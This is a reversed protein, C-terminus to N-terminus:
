LNKIYNRIEPDNWDTGGVFKRRIIGKRDIVYTEPWMDTHFLNAATQSPDRVTILDVHRSRIFSAYAAPDDDISIAIVAIDPNSRHFNLLSPMEAVCPPCWTAWFNLLVVKGRYNSLKVSTYGDSVTFDPATKGTQAPHAGRDCGPVITLTTLLPLLLLLRLYRM